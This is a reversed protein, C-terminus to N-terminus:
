DGTYEYQSLGDEDCLLAAIAIETLKNDTSVFPLDLIVPSSTGMLVGAMPMRGVFIFLQSLSYGVEVDPVLYIDVNGTVVSSVGKRAAAKGSVACDIDLPGEIAVDGFQKRESMKSLVAADLTSPIAPNVQEIAALAAIKPSRIGLANALTIANEVIAKKEALTPFNNIYSDTVMVLKGRQQMEFLSAFSTLGGRLLGNERDQIADVFFQHPVAGQMLIDGRNEKIMSLATSLSERYDPKDVIKYDRPSISTGKLLEEIMDGDGVFIPLILDSEVADSVVKVIRGEQQPLL